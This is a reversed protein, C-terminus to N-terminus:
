RTLTIAMAEQVQEPSSVSCIPLFEGGLASAICYILEFGMPGYIDLRATGKMLPCGPAPSFNCQPPQTPIVNNMSADFTRLCGLALVLEDPARALPYAKAETITTPIARGNYSDPLYRALLSGTHGPACLFQRLHSHPGNAAFVSTNLFDALNDIAEDIRKSVTKVSFDIFVRLNTSPICVSLRLTSVCIYMIFKHAGRRGELICDDLIFM